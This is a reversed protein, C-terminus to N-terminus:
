RIKDLDINIKSPDKKNVNFDTFDLRYKVVQDFLEYQIFYQKNM